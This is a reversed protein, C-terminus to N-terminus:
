EQEQYPRIYNSVNKGERVFGRLVTRERRSHQEPVDFRVAHFSQSHPAFAM